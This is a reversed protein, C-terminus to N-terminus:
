DFPRMGTCLIHLIRCTYFYRRGHYGVAGAIHLLSSPRPSCGVLPFIHLPLPHAENSDLSLSAAMHSSSSGITIASGTADFIVVPGVSADHEQLRLGDLLLM